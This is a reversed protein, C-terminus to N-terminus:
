RRLLLLEALKMGIEKFLEIIKWTDEKSINMSRKSKNENEPDFELFIRINHDNEFACHSIELWYNEIIYRVVIWIEDIMLMARKNDKLDGKEFLGFAQYLESYDYSKEVEAMSQWPNGHIAM